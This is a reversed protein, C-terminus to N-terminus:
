LRVKTKLRGLGSPRHLRMLAREDHMLPLVEAVIMRGCQWGEQHSAMVDM